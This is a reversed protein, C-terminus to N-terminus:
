ANRTQHTPRALLPRRKHTNQSAGPQADHVPARPLVERGTKSQGLSPLPLRKAPNRSRVQFCLQFVPRVVASNGDDDDDVADDDDDDEDEDQDEDEDEDEDEEDEDDDEDEGEKEDKDKYVKTQTKTKTMAKMMTKATAKTKTTTIM